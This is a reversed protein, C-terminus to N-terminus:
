NAVREGNVKIWAEMAAGATLSDKPPEAPTDGADVLETCDRARVSVEGTERGETPADGAFFLASCACEWVPHIAARTQM